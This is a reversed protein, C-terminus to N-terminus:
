EDDDPTSLGDVSWGEFPDVTGRRYDERDNEPLLLRSIENLREDVLVAAEADTKARVLVTVAVTRVPDPVYPAAVEVPATFAMEAVRRDYKAGDERAWARLLDFVRTLREKDSIREDNILNKLGQIKESADM